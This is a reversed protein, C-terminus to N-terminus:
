VRRCVAMDNHIAHPDIVRELQGAPSSVAVGRQDVPGVAMEHGFVCAGVAGSEVVEAAMSRM